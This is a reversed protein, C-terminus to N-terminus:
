IGNVVAPEMKTEDVFRRALRLADKMQNVTPVFKAFKVMDSADLFDRLFTKQEDSLVTSRRAKEMFEQTTMEPARISFRGEIYHRVIDSLAAYYEKVQGQSILGRQELWNLAEYTLEWVPRPPPPPVPKEKYRLLVILGRVLAVLILIALIILVWWWDARLAVPGRVDRLSDAFCFPVFSLVCLGLLFFVFAKTRPMQREDQMKHRTDKEKRRELIM